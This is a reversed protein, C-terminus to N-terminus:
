TTSSDCDVRSSSAAVQTSPLRLTITEHEQKGEKLSFQWHLELDRLCCFYTNHFKPHLVLKLCGPEVLDKLGSPGKKELSDLVRTTLIM